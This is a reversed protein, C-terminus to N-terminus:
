HSGAQGAKDTNEVAEQIEHVASDKDGKELHKAARETLRIATVRYTGKNVVSTQLADHAEKVKTAAENLDGDGKALIKQAEALQRLAANIHPQGPYKPEDARLVAGATLLFTVVLSTTRTNM